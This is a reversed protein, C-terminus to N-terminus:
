LNLTIEIFIGCDKCKKTYLNEQKDYGFVKAGMSKFALALQHMSVGGVGLFLITKNKIEM